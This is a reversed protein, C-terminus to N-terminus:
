DSSGEKRWEGHGDDAGDLVDDWGAVCDMSDWLFVDFFCRLSPFPPLHFSSSCSAGRPSAFHLVNGDDKFM